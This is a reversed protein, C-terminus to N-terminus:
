YLCVYFSNENLLYVKFNLGEVRVGGEGSNEPEPGKKSKSKKRRSKKAPTAAENKQNIGADSDDDEENNTAGADDALLKSGKQEFLVDKTAQNQIQKRELPTLVSAGGRPFSPEDDRLLSVEAAKPASSPSSKSKNKGNQAERHSNTTQKEGQNKGEKAGVRMRKEPQKATDSASNGKRKVPAM